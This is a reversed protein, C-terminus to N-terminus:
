LGGRLEDVIARLFPGATGSAVARTIGVALNGLAADRLQAPVERADLEAALALQAAVVHRAVLDNVEAVVDEPLAVVTGVGDLAAAVLERQVEDVHDVVFVAMAGHAIEGSQGVVKCAIVHCGPLLAALPPTALETAMNAVVTGPALHPALWRLADAIGAAPVALLVLECCRAAAPDTGVVLAPRSAGREIRDPRRSLGVLEVGAGIRAALARGM